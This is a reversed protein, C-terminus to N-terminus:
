PKSGSVEASYLNIISHMLKLINGGRKITVRCMGYKTRGRPSNKDIWVIFRQTTIGTAESWHNLCEEKNMGRFIRLTPIIFEEPVELGVRLAKLYLSIMRDDSNIFECRNKKSGEGWYLMAIAILLERHKGILLAEANKEADKWRRAALKASGGRKSVLIKEYNPLIKVKQIHHWVTTKPINLADRIENISYGRERLYRLRKIKEDSHIRVM